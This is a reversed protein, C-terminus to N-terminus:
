RKWTFWRELLRKRFPTLINAYYQGAVQKIADAQTPYPHIVGALTKLGKGAAMAASIESIMDGAHRAVITAGVIRDKGSRTHVKVFGEDEGDLVARDVEHFHKIFTDVQIGREVAESEYMGVHAIEPDTYTCWPIILSKTKKSKLFLANQVVIRATAEAIHTFRYPFCIDGAAYIRSNTTQLYNNVVVGRRQDYEVGAAELNLGDVNPIRGAGVLIEDVELTEDGGDTTLHVVKRGNRTIVRNISASFICRIGEREFSAGLIDAADRDERMLLQPGIEVITVESGLRRFAQALECGIPGGGIV